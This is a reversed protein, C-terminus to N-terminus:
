VFIKSKKSQQTTSGDDVVIVPKEFKVLKDAVPAFADAHNFCPIIVVTKKM